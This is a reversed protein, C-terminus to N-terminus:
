RFAGKTTQVIIRWITQKMDMIGPWLYAYGGGWRFEVYVAYFTGAFVYGIVINKSAHYITHSGVSRRLTGTRDTFGKGTKARNYDKKIHSETTLAALNVGDYLLRIIEAQAIDLNKLVEDIGYVKGTLM